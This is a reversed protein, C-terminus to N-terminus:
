FSLEEMTREILEVTDRPSGLRLIWCPVRAMVQRLLLLRFARRAPSLGWSCYAIEPATAWEFVDTQDLTLRFPEVSARDAFGGLFFVARLQTPRVPQDPFLETIRYPRAWPPNSASDSASDDGEGSLGLVVALERGHPGPRVNVARRFPVVENTALRILAIEDGLLTHGHAALHLSTTTKGARSAGVLVVGADGMQLSAGHIPLTWSQAGLTIGVLYEVLVEPPVLKPHLLVHGEGAALIPGNSGGALRWGQLPSEWVRFPPLAGTPRLLNYAAGAPDPPAGEQFTLVVLQPDFSRRITCRTGPASAAVTDSVVCDGYLKSFAELPLPHDVVMRLTADGLQYSASALPVFPRSQVERLLEPASLWWPEDVWHVEAHAEGAGAQHFM